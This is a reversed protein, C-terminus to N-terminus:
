KELYKFEKKNFFLVIVNIMELIVNNILLLSGQLM